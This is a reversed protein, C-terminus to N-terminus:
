TVDDGADRVKCTVGCKQEVCFDGCKLGTSKGWM